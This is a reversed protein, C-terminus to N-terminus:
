DNIIRDSRKEILKYDIVQIVNKDERLYRYLMLRIYFCYQIYEIYLLEGDVLVLALEM